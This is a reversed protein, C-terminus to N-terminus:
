HIVQVFGFHSGINEKSEEAYIGTEANNNNKNDNISNLINM